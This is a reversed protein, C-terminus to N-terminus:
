NISRYKLTSRGKDMNGCKIRIIEVDMYSGM